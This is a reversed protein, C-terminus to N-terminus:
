LCDYPGISRYAIVDYLVIHDYISQLKERPFTNNKTNLLTELDSGHVGYEYIIYFDAPMVVDYVWTDPANNNSISNANDGGTITSINMSDNGKSTGVPNDITENHMAGLGDPNNDTSCGLFLVPLMLAIISLSLKKLM